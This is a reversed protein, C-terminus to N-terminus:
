IDELQMALTIADDAQHEFQERVRSDASVKLASEDYIDKAVRLASTITHIEKDSLNITPM